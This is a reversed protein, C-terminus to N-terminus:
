QKEAHDIYVQGPQQRSLEFLQLNKQDRTQGAQQRDQTGPDAHAHGTQDHLLEAHVFEDRGGGSGGDGRSLEANEQSEQEQRVGSQPSPRKEGEDKGTRPVQDKTQNM